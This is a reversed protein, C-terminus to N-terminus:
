TSYYASANLIFKFIQIIPLFNQINQGPRSTVLDVVANNKLLELM